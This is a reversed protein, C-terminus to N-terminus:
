GLGLFNVIKFNSTLSQCPPTSKLRGATVSKPTLRLGQEAECVLVFFCYAKEDAKGMLIMIAGPLLAVVACRASLMGLRRDSVYETGSPLGNLV